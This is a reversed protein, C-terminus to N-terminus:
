DILAVAEIEVAGDKPLRAAQVASRAPYKETFFESYVGNMTGFDNMDRLFVTTKVVHKLSSGAEELINKLNELAQRTEGEIGGTAFEGTEPVLGLQGATFIFHGAKVAVSYPGLAQPAKKSTIIEKKM